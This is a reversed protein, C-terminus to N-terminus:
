SLKKAGCFSLIMDAVHHRREDLWAQETMDQAYTVSLTHRNSLHLYSLSLVSVYLQLADVDTRFRCDREGRALIDRIADVLSEAAEAIQPLKKVFKGRMTNEAAAMHVFDPNKRMHDFTFHVLKTLAEVPPLDALNLTREEERIHFYVQELCALYLGEKGGFYHYLMRINCKARKAIGDTRAGGYGKAGFEALGAKLIRAKTAAADRRIIPKEDAVSM